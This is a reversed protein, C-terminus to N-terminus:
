FISAVTLIADKMGHIKKKDAPNITVLVGGLTTSKYDESVFYYPCLRVRGKMQKVEGSASDFYSHEVLKTEAFEQLIRPSSQFEDQAKQLESKWEESSCDHGVTVGRSGWAQESFGSVKLVLEREKQSFEGVEDWSHVNLQPIAACEPLPQPDVVWGQPIIERLTNLQKGRLEEAWYKQLSPTHFLALWLKEELHPKLPPTVKKELFGKINPLNEWDFLEFFRYSNEKAEANEASVCQFPSGSPENANLQGVLWEMEPLYDSSEVSIHVEGSDPFLSKFGSIMGEGLIRPASDETMPKESDYQQMLWGTLGMGGPVSDLETLAFGDETLLLDPRIVRPLANKYIGTTQAEILWDPKGADLTQSVWPTITEKKSRKYLRDCAMQFKLLTDGLRELTRVQKKDLTFTEPSLLFPLEAGRFLGKEPLAEKFKSLEM